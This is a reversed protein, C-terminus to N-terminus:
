YGRNSSLVSSGIHAAAGTGLAALAYSGYKNISKRNRGMFRATSVMGGAGKNLMNHIGPRGIKSAGYQMAGAARAVGRRAKTSLWKSAGQMRGPRIFMGGLAGAGAGAIDGELAYGAGAGLAIRGWINM